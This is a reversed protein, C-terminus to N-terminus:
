AGAKKRRPRTSKKVDAKVPETEPEALATKEPEPESKKEPVDAAVGASEFGHQGVLRDHEEQTVEFLGQKNAKLVKGDFGISTATHASLERVERPFGQEDRIVTRTEARPARVFFKTV